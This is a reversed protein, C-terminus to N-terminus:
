DITWLTLSERDKVFISKGDIIPMAWTGSDAVRYKKVEAYDTKDPKFVVLNGDSSLAILVTGGDLISGCPGGQAGDAWLEKGTKADQAYMRTRGQGADAYGYL